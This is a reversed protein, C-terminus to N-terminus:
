HRIIMMKRTAIAKGDVILSYFYIGSSLEDSNFQIRNEGTTAPLVRVREGLSNVVVIEANTATEAVKCNIVTIDSYPNPTNGLLVNDDPSSFPYLRSEDNIPEVPRNYKRDKVLELIVQASLQQLCPVNAVYEIESLQADSALFWNGGNRAITAAVSYFRKGAAEPYASIKRDADDFRQLALYSEIVFAKDETLEGAEWVPLQAAIGANPDGLSKEIDGPPPCSGVVGCSAMAVSSSYNTPVSGSGAYYAFSVLPSFIHGFAGVPTAFTNKVPVSCGAGQDAISGAVTPCVVIQYTAVTNFTNCKIQLGTSGSGNNGQAQICVYMNNITNYSIVNNTNLGNDGIIGYTNQPTASAGAASNQTVTYAQANNMRIGWTADNFNTTAPNPLQDITNGNVAAGSSYSFTVGRQVNRFLSNYVYAAKAVGSTFDAKVGLTLGEFESHNIVAPPFTFGFQDNITYIADFSTVGTGRNNISYLTTASNRFKCGSISIGKIEHMSIHTSPLVTADNLIRNTEFVTNKFFTQNNPEPSGPAHYYLIQVSRRNNYFFSNTAQIIGGTYSWDWSTTVDKITTIGEYANEITGNNMIVKGQAGATSQTVTSTGWLEIGYWMDGCANTIKGGGNINLIAGREVIVRKNKSMYLTGTINLTVGPKVAIDTGIYKNGTWTASTTVNYTGLAPLPSEWIGRGNTSVRIMNKCNQIELNTVMVVPLQNSFCEWASTASNYKYVGFDTGIYLEDNSGNRYVMSIVPCAPLSNNTIDSWNAGGNTSRLVRNVGLYLGAGSTSQAWYGNMGVYVEDANFADTAICTVASWSLASMSAAGADTWNTGGDVSKYFRGSTNGGDWTPGGRSVYITNSNAPSVHIANIANGNAPFGTLITWSTGFNTSRALVCNGGTQNFAAYITAPANPDTVVPLNGNTTGAPAPRGGYCGPGTNTTGGVSGANSCGYYDNTVSNITGQWGDYNSKQKWTNSSWEFTGNDQTGGVLLGYNTESGSFDYFQNIALGAGNMNVWAASTYNHLTTPSCVSKGVGGDSGIVVVDNTGSTSVVMHRIDAHTNANPLCASTAWYQSMQLWNASTFTNSGTLNIDYVTTGALYMRSANLKSFEMELKWYGSGLSFVGNSTMTGVSATLLSTPNVRKVILPTSATNEDVYAMYFETTNGPQVAACIRSAFHSSTVVTSTIDTFSGASGGTASYFAKAPDYNYLGWASRSTCVMIKSNSVGSSGNIIDIDRFTWVFGETTPPATIDLVVTWTPTVANANSTRFVRGAALVYMTNVDQPHYLVKTVGGTGAVGSNYNALSLIETWTTGGDTTRMLGFGYHTGASFPVGNNVAGIFITTPITPHVAITSIGICPMRSPDTLCSWSNGNNVTKFLGGGSAGALVESPNSPNVYVATVMGMIPNSYTAPGVLSWAGQNGSTCINPAAQTTPNSNDGIRVSPNSAVMARMFMGTNAMEGPVSANCNMRDKWYWDWHAFFVEEPNEAMGEAHNKRLSREWPKESEEIKRLYKERLDYYNPTAPASKATQGSLTISLAIGPVLLLAARILSTTKM